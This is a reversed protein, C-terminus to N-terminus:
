SVCSGTGVTQHQAQARAVDASVAPM